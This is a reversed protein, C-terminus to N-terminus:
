GRPLREGRAAAPYTGTLLGPGGFHRASGCALIVFHSRPVFRKM